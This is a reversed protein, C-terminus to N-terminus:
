NNFNEKAEKTSDLLFTQERLVKFEYVILFCLCDKKFNSYEKQKELGESCSKELADIENKLEELESKKQALEKGMNDQINKANNWKSEADKLERKTIDVEDDIMAYFLQKSDFSFKDVFTDLLEIKEAENYSKAKLSPSKKIKEHNIKGKDLSKLNNEVEKQYFKKEASNLRDKDSGEPSFISASINKKVREKIILNEYDNRIENQFKDYRKKIKDDTMSEAATIDDSFKQSCDVPYSNITKYDSNRLVETVKWAIADYVDCNITSKTSNSPSEDEQQM